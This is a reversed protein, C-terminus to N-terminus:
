RVKISAGIREPAVPQAQSSDEASGTPRTAEPSAGGGRQGISLVARKQEVIEPDNERALDIPM